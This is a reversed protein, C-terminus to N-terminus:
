IKDWCVLYSNVLVGDDGQVVCEGTNKNLTCIIAPKKTVKNKVLVGVNIEQVSEEKLASNITFANELIIELIQKTQPTDVLVDFIKEDWNNVFEGILHFSEYITKYVLVGTNEKNFLVSLQNNYGIYPYTREKM